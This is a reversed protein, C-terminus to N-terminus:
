PYAPCGAMPQTNTSAPTDGTTLGFDQTWTAAGAYPPVSAPVVGTGVDRYAPDLINACHEPSKMWAEVVASATAPGTDINEGADQWDYGVYALRPAFAVHDYIGHAVMYESYDQAVLALKLNEVLPPLAYWARVRNVLCVVAASIVPAPAASAPTDANPCSVLPTRSV